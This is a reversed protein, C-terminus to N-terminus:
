SLSGSLKQKFFIIDTAKAMDALTGIPFDIEFHKAAVEYPSIRELERDTLIIARQRFESNVREIRSLEEAGFDGLKSFVIFVDFKDEPFAQAVALLNTVDDKTIPSHSKCEGIAIQTRSGSETVVCFDTECEPIEATIPLLNAAPIYFGGGFIMITDLQQLTLTVPIGGEQNDDRGFLGSRRFAWGKDKLQRSTSVIEGCYECEVKAKSADLTLWFDLSCNPCVFRLGPRFVERELLYDLVASVTLSSNADRKEIHLWQYESLPKIAGQGQIAQSADARSFSQDPRHSRILERVGEIKFPRCGNLGGMQRILRATVLGAKSTKLEIGASRFIEAALPIVEFARISMHEISTRTVVGLATQGVRVTDPPLIQAAAYYPNLVPLYPAKGTVSERGQIAANIAVEVIYHEFPSEEGFPREPLPFTLRPPSVTNDVAALASASTYFFLPVHLNFGNWLLNSVFHTTIPGGLEEDDPLTLDFDLFANVEQRFENRMWLNAGTRGDFRYTGRIRFAREKRQEAYREAYRPDYFSLDLGAATLNWFHILDDFNNADGFYLGPLDYGTTLVTQSRGLHWRCLDIIGRKWSTDPVRGNQPIEYDNPRLYGYRLEYSRDAQTESPFQGYTALFVDTLPDEPKWRTRRFSIDPEDVGDFYEREIQNMEHTVDVFNPEFKGQRRRSFLMQIGLSKKLHPYGAIFGSVAPSDSAPMLVDVRYLNIMAAAHAADDIVILPCYGGGSLTCSLRLAKRYGDMDGRLLCWGIKIPRYQLRVPVSTM